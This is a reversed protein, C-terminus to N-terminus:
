RAPSALDRLSLPRVFRENICNGGEPEATSRFIRRDLLNSSIEADGCPGFDGDRGAPGDAAPKGPNGASAPRCADSNAGAPGGSGGKQGPGGAGPKGPSGRISFINLEFDSVDTIAIQLRSTPGGSIADEGPLGMVKGDEGNTGNTPQKACKIEAPIDFRRGSVQSSQGPSGSRGSAVPNRALLEQYDANESQIEKGSKSDPANGGVLKLKLRGIAKKARIRIEAKGDDSGDNKPFQRNSVITANGEIILAILNLDIKDSGLELVTGNEMFLRGTIGNLESTLSGSKNIKRDVPCEIRREFQIPM